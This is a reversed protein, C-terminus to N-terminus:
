VNLAALLTHLSAQYKSLRHHIQVLEGGKSQSRLQKKIGDWKNAVKPGNKGIIEKLLEELKQVAARCGDTNADVEAWLKQLLPECNLSSGPVAGDTAERLKQISENVSILSTIERSLVAIEEEVKGASEEIEKLYSGVRWCVDLLGITGIAISFPDAM